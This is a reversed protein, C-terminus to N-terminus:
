GCCELELGAFTPNEFQFQVYWWGWGWAICTRISGMRGFQACQFGLRAPDRVEAMVKPVTVLKDANRTLKDGGEVLDKADVIAVVIGKTSNCNKNNDVVFVRTLPAPTEPNPKPPPQSKVTSSWMPAPAPATPTTNDEM